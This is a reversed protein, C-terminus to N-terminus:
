WGGCSGRDGPPTDHPSSKKGDRYQRREQSTVSATRRRRDQVWPSAFRGDSRKVLSGPPLDSMSAVTRHKPGARDEPGVGFRALASADEMM